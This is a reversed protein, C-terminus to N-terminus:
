RRPPSEHNKMQLFTTKNTPDQTFLGKAVFDDHLTVFSQLQLHKKECLKLHVLINSWAFAPILKSKVSIWRVKKVM